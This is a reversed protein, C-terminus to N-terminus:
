TLGDTLRIPKTPHSYKSCTNSTMVDENQTFTRYFPPLTGVHGNSNVLVYLMWELLCVNTILLPIM